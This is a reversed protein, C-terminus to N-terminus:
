EPTGVLVGEIAGETTVLLGRGPALQQASRRGFVKVSQPDNDMFLTPARSGTLKQLFPSMASVGAWNGPLRACIVHLGIERSREILSWLPATAAAKGLGGAPRLEHEDDILVFHGGAHLPATHTGVHHAGVHTRAGRRFM